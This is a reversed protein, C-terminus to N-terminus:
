LTLDSIILANFHSENEVRFLVLICNINFTRRQKKLMLPLIFKKCNNRNEV